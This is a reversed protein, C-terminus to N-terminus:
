VRTWRGAPCPGTTRQTRAAAALQKAERLSAGSDHAQSPSTCYTKCPHPSIRSTQFWARNPLAMQQAM